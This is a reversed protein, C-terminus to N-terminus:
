PLLVTACLFVHHQVTASLEIDPDVPLLFLSDSTRAQASSAEFGVDLSRDKDLLAVDRFGQAGEHDILKHPAMRIWVVM